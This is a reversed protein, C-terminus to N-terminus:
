EYTFSCKVYPEGNMDNLSVGSVNDETYVVPYIVDSLYASKKYEVRVRKIERNGPILDMAMQVYQGNNVHRNSDLHHPMVTISEKELGEGNLTIKRDTYEMDLKEGVAYGEIMEPSAKVPLIKGLDILTWVSNAMALMEGNKESKIYFNRFGLPGRISYPITGIIIREGLEPLKILDIQWYNIVWAQNKSLLYNVGLGLDESQFTSCDQLYNILATWKLKGQSDTESYRVRSSFEYM